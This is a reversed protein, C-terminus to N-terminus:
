KADICSHRHRYTDVNRRSIGWQPHFLKWLDGEEEWVDSLGELGVGVSQAFGYIVANLGGASAGALVDFRIGSYGLAGLLKAYTDARDKLDGRLSSTDNLTGRRVLDLEAIAGGIWVALSVGGRM